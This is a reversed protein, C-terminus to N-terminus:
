ITERFDEHRPLNDGVAWRSITTRSVKLREALEKQEIGVKLLATIAVTLNGPEAADLSALCAAVAHMFVLYAACVAAAAPLTHWADVVDEHHDNKEMTM